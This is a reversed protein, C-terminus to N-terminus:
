AGLGVEPRQALRALIGDEIWRMLLGGVERAVTDADAASAVAECIEAFSEGRQLAALAQQEVPAMAAHSVAFGERWVRIATPAPAGRVPGGDDPDGAAAWIEHVPWACEVVLCAPVLRFRLAPWDSPLVIRLDDPRLPEADPADFVDVRAWELRALDGLFSPLTLESGVFEAFRRGVHRVSPHTSPHRALYRVALAHFEDDGVVALVRAFDERLVDVLRAQYMGAYVGPRESAGLAATGDLTALLAPDFAPASTVAAFFRVQLERLPLM